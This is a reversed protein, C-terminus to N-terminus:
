FCQNGNAGRSSCLFTQNGNLTFMTLQRKRVNGERVDVPYSRRLERGVSLNTRSEVPKHTSDWLVAGVKSALRLDWLSLHDVSRDLTIVVEPTGM